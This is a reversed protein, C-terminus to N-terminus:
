SRRPTEAAQDLPLDAFLGRQLFAKRLSDLSAAVATINIGPTYRSSRIAAAVQLADGTRAAIPITRFDTTLERAHDDFGSSFDPYSRFANPAQGKLMQAHLDQLNQPTDANVTFWAPRFFDRPGTDRTTMNGPNHNDCAQGNATELAVQALLLAAMDRDIDDVGARRLSAVLLGGATAMDIPTRARPVEPM